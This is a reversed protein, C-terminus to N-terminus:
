QFHCHEFPGQNLSNLGVFSGFIIKPRFTSEFFFRSNDCTIRTIYFSAFIFLLAKFTRLKSFAIAKKTHQLLKDYSSANRAVLSSVKTAKEM